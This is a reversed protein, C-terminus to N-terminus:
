AGPPLEEKNLNRIDMDIDTTPLTYSDDDFNVQLLEGKKNQVLGLSGDAFEIAFVLGNGDGSNIWVGNDKAQELMEDNLDKDVEIEFDRPMLNDEGWCCSGVLGERKYLDTIEIDVEINNGMNGHMLEYIAWYAVDQALNRQHKKGGTVSVLAM